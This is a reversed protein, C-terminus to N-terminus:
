TFVYDSHPRKGARFLVSVVHQIQDASVKTKSTEAKLITLFLHRSNLDSLRHYNTLSFRLCIDM